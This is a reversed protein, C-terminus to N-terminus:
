QELLACFSINRGANLSDRRYSHFNTNSVTDINIDTVPATPSIQQEIYSKLDIHYHGLIETVYNPDHFSLNKFTDFCDEKTQFSEKSIHPGIFVEYNKLDIQKISKSTIQNAVGRWGAHIALAKDKTILFLPICDATKILLAANSQTSWHADAEQTQGSAKVCIDGHVQKINRFSLNPFNNKIAEISSKNNGFFVLFHETKKYYGIDIKTFSSIM